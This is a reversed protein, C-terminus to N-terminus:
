IFSIVVFFVIYFLKLLSFFVFCLLIYIYKINKKINLFIYDIVMLLYVNFVFFVILTFYGIKSYFKSFFLENLGFALVLLIDIVLLLITCFVFKM